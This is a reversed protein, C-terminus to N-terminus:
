ARRVLTQIAKLAAATGSQASTVVDCPKLACGAVYIGDQPLIFGDEDMKIDINLKEGALSPQMGTALVVLEVEQKVKEGGVADEAVVLLNDNEVQEVKAVKGKIFHIKPDEKVKKYFKEYREGPSRIDIYFIYIDADPYQERVYTAQKLTAMCCIYSCYPLHNEDRSGACQVFAVSKIGQNDSPRLIKGATPGSISALREMIMNTIVNPYEGYGLNDIKTADYPKWGTAFIIAQVNLTIEEPEMSLDIGDAEKLKDADKSNILEPDVVYEMPFALDHPIYLAKRKDLGFNFSNPVEFELSKAIESLGYANEKVYRPEVKIKVEFNGAEGSINTLEALTYFTINPNNKIRKFQIELGCYPPCLKPFYKNLQAVRGGLYAEKEVIVVKYGVEAAELAATLGAFGGGVILITGEKGNDSM